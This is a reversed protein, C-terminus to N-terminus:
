IGSEFSSPRDAFLSEARFRRSDPIRFPYNRADRAVLARSHASDSTRIKLPGDRAPGIRGDCRGPGTDVSRCAARRDRGSHGGLRHPLRRRRGGCSDRDLVTEEDDRVERHERVLRGTSVARTSPRAGRSKRRGPEPRAIAAAGTGPGPADVHDAGHGNSMVMLGEERYTYFGARRRPRAGRGRLEYSLGREPRPEHGRM